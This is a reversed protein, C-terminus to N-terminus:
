FLSINDILRVKGLYGAICLSVRDSKQIKSVNQLNETYVVEFYELDIVSNSEFYDSIYKKVSIVSEQNNLKERALILSNYLVVAQKREERSLLKNRSSMALGDSERITEVPIIEIDFLLDKALKKIITLQQLDKTGFYARNPKVLNFLKTVILGVGSFHGPRFRGEMIEELYGFHFNVIRHEDYMDEVTPIFVVDCLVDQLKAIDSATDRPYKNLDEPNNFQTPNVFISCITLDNQQKSTKILELHGEHLAGMTPVFGVSKEQPKLTGLYHKFGQINTFIDM